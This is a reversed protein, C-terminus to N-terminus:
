VYNYITDHYLSFYYVLYQCRVCCSIIDNACTIFSGRWSKCSNRGATTPCNRLEACERDCHVIGLEFLYMDASLILCEDGRDSVRHLNALSAQLLELRLAAATAAATLAAAGAALVLLLLLLIDGDLM